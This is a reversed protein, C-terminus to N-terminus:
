ESKKYEVIATVTFELSTGAAPSIDVGKINRAWIQFTHDGLVEIPHIEFSFFDFLKTDTPPRPLLYADLPTILKGEDLFDIEAGDMKFRLGIDHETLTYNAISFMIPGNFVYKEITKPTLEFLKVEGGAVFAVDTGHSYTKEVYTLHHLHQVKARALLDAPFPENPELIVQQGVIRCLAGSPGEVTFKVEPPVAYYLKGLELAGLLNSAYKYVPAVVDKIKGTDKGDIKLYTDTTGTTGIATIKYGLRKGTEYETGQALYANLPFYRVM